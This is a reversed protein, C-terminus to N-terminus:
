TTRLRKQRLNHFPELAFLGRLGRCSPRVIGCTCDSVYLSFFGSLDMALTSQGFDHAHLNIYNLPQRKYM